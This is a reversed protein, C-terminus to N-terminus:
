HEYKSHIKDSQLMDPSESTAKVNPPSSLTVFRLRNSRWRELPLEVFYVLPASVAISLALLLIGDWLRQAPEFFYGVMIHTLYIPYSFEGINRDIRSGKTFEFIAPLTFYLVVALMISYPWMPKPQTESWITPPILWGVFVILVCIALTWAPGGKILRRIDDSRRFSLMGIVFFMLEAPFFRQQWPVFPLPSLIIILRIVLSAGVISWLTGDSTRWLLPVLLYFWLELALSWGQPILLANSLQVFSAFDQGFMAINFFGALATESTSEFRFNGAPFPVEPMAIILLATAACIIWYSAMLRSYRNSYFIWIPAPQYRKRLLEMYFGSIVFFAQVAFYPPLPNIIPPLGVGGWGPAHGLVVAAALLFRIIGV